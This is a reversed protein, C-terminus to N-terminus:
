SEGPQVEVPDQFDVDSLPDQGEADVVAPVTVAGAEEFVFTM